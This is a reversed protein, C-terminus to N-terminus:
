GLRLAQSRDPTLQEACAMRLRKVLDDEDRALHLREARDIFSRVDSSFEARLAAIEEDTWDWWALALLRNRTDADFRYGVIQAPNGVVVAYPPVWKSVVVGAGLVAGHGVSVGSLVIARLGIWVDNGIMTPGRDIAEGANGAAPEFLLANLPFTAARDTVHESGALVRVEPGLSCFSGIDIRAGHMFIQFTQAVHGYTHRGVTVGPPLDPGTSVGDIVSEASNPRGRRRANDNNVDDTSTRSSQDAWALLVARDGVLYQRNHGDAPQALAVRQFGAVEAAQVLASKNPILSVVGGASALMNQEHDTEVVAAYSAESEEHQGTRGNGHVIAEAQRTLQSEIVCVGRTLARAIRVAGIPNELHYVLGLCLVVDFTGLRSSDLEFVDACCFELREPSIDFHTRILEARRILQPRIDVALVRSVGWELLRHSFWGENCALDIATCDPGAASIAARVESEMLELRTRHIDPLEPGAVPTVVDADLQWAYMWAPPQVVERQLDASM